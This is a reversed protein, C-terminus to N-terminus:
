SVYPQGIIQGYMPTGLLKIEMMYSGILHDKEDLTWAYPDKFGRQDFLHKQRFDLATKNEKESSIFHARLDQSSLSPKEKM